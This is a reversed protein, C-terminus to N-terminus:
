ERLHLEGQEAGEAEREGDDGALDVLEDRGAEVLVLAVGEHGIEHRRRHQEQEARM